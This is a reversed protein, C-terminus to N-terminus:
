FYLNSGKIREALECAERQLGSRVATGNGLELSLDTRAHYAPWNPLGKGNPDGSRAFNVWYDMITRSLERDDDEYGRAPDLEGFVYPIESGHCACLARGEETPPVRDFHYLYANGGAESLCRALFRCPAWFELATVMESLSSKAEGGEGPPFLRLVEEAAGGAMRHVFETYDSGSCDLGALFFNAEDRNCGAILDVDHQKGELYLAEPRDPLLSGDVVPGFDMGGPLLGIELRAASLLEEESRARMDALIDASGDSGLAQALRVGVEEARSLSRYAPPLLHRIWFPPSEAIAGRFLGEAPPSVMLDLISTAGASEGFLTVRSADGGFGGINRQVWRLVALQDLLGYNSSVGEPSERSLLPHALFGFPGLRYNITVVVAGRGALGRGSYLPTGHQLELSTSGTLFAGGHIWVMVPLPEGAEGAAVWVNLYLCDEGLSGLGYWAAEPQPCSDGFQKCPRVGDWAPVPRPPRWRLEGTPPAAYPIGLFEWIGEELRGEVMGADTSVVCRCPGTEQFDMAVTGKAAKGRFRMEVSVGHYSMFRRQPVSIAIWRAPLPRGSTDKPEINSRGASTYLMTVVRTSM